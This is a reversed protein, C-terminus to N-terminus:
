SKPVPKEGIAVNLAGNASAACSGSSGVQPRPVVDGTGDIFVLALAYWPVLEYEAYERRTLVSPQDVGKGSWGHDSMALRRCPTRSLLGVYSDTSSTTSLTIAYPTSGKRAPSVDVPDTASPLM